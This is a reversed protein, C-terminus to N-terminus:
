AASGMMQDVAKAYAKESPNDKIGKPVGLSWVAQLAISRDTISKRLTAINAKVAELNIADANLTNWLKKAEAIQSRRAEAKDRFSSSIANLLATAGMYVLNAVLHVIASMAFYGVLVSAAIVAGHPTGHFLSEILGYTVGIGGLTSLLWAITGEVLSSHGRIFVGPQFVM